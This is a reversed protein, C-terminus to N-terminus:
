IYFQLECNLGEKPSIRAALRGMKTTFIVSNLGEQRRQRCACVYLLLRIESSCTVDNCFRSGLLLPPTRSSTRPRSSTLIRVACRLFKKPRRRYKASFHQLFRWLALLEARHLNPGSIVHNTPSVM